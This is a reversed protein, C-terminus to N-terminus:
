PGGNYGLVAKLIASGEEQLILCLLNGSCHACRQAFGSNGIAKTLGNASTAVPLINKLGELVENVLYHRWAREVM